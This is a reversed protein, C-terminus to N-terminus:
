NHIVVVVENKFSCLQLIDNHRIRKLDNQMTNVGFFFKFVCVLVCRKPNNKNQVQKNM